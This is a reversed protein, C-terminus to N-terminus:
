IYSSVGNIFPPFPIELTEVAFRGDEVTLKQKAISTGLLLSGANNITAKQYSSTFFRIGDEAFVFFSEINEQILLGKNSHRIRGDMVGGNAGDGMFRIGRNGSGRLEMIGDINVWM